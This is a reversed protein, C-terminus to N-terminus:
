PFLPLAPKEQNIEKQNQSQDDLITREFSEKDISKENQSSSSPEEKTFSPIINKIEGSLSQTSEAGLKNMEVKFSFFWIFIFIVMSVSVFVWMWFRREPEDKQRINEIIRKFSFMKHKNYFISKQKKM